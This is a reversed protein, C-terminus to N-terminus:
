TCTHTHTHTKTAWDHGVRHWGKSQLGGPKEAWPIKWVLIISHTAMEEELPIKGVQPDFGCRRHEQMAHSNKVGQAMCSARKLVHACALPRTRTATTWDSLWTRSEAVGRVAALWAERDKVVKLLKSLNMDMSNTFGDLWRMRQRTRKWNLSDLYNDHDGRFKAACCLLSVHGRPFKYGRPLTPVSPMWM